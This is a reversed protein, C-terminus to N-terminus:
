LDYDLDHPVEEKTVSVKNTLVLVIQYVLILIILIFSVTVSTYLWGKSIRLIPLPQAAVTRSIGYSSIVMYFSFYLMVLRAIVYAIKQGLVPMKDRLVTIALHDENRTVTVAGLFILWPFLLSTLETTFVLPFNFVYRSLVEGFVVLTLLVMMLGSVLDITKTIASIIGSFLNQKEKLM